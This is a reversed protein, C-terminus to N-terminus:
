KHQPPEDAVQSAWLANPDEQAIAHLLTHAQELVDADAAVDAEQLQTTILQRREASGPGVDLLGAEVAPYKTELLAKLALYEAEIPDDREYANPRMSSVAGAALAKVITPIANM